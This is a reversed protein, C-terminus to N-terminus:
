KDRENGASELRIKLNRKGNQIHSKVENASYGTTKSIEAYSCNELYFLRICMEQPESLSSIAERLASEQEDKEKLHAMGDSEMYVIVAENLDLEKKLRTSRRRLEMLCYNKSYVYLWSRFHKVRHKQLDNVLGAFIGSVADEADQTNRLYKLCLGLVLHSFRDYIEALVEREANDAYDAALRDDSISSYRGL